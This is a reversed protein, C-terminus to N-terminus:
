KLIYPDTKTGNGSIYLENGDIYIVLNYENYLNANQYRVIGGTIYFVEYTNESVTNPTWTSSAISSLYNYNRCSRSIISNCDPDTSAMAFDSVNMLSVMQNELVESCDLAKSISYDKTNRKGICTNYAVIHEKASSSIKKSNKYDNVLNNLISSDKYITKGYSQNVEINYKNDWLRSNSESEVKILKIIGSSDISMIRYDQGFFNIYNNVKDGKFIYEEGVKYLGSESTVVESTIKDILHVTNYDDCKLDVIYNLFGGNNTDISEGNRRVSVKGTCSSDKLAKSPSKIYGLDVLKKLSISSVSSENIPIKNEKSFYKSASKIMNKEYSEYSMKRNGCAQVIALFILILIPLLIIFCAIGLFKKDVKKLTEVM